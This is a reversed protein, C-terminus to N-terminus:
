CCYCNKEEKEKDYKESKIKLNFSELFPKLFDLTNEKFFKYENELEKRVEPLGEEFIEINFNKFDDTESTFSLYDYEDLLSSIAGSIDEKSVGFVEEFNLQRDTTYKEFKKLYKM